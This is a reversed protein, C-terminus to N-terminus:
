EEDPRLVDVEGTRRVTLVQEAAVERILKNREDPSFTGLSPAKGYVKRYTVERHAQCNFLPVEDGLKKELRPHGASLWMFGYTVLYEEGDVTLSGADVVGGESRWREATPCILMEPAIHEPVLAEVSPPNADHNAARYNAWAQHLQTLRAKCADVESSQQASEGRALASFGAREAFQRAVVLGGGVLVLVGLGLVFVNAKGTHV